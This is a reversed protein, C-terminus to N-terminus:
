LPSYLHVKWNWNRPGPGMTNSPSGTPVWGGCCGEGSEAWARNHGFPRGDWCSSLEQEVYPLTNM